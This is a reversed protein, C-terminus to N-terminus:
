NATVVPVTDRVYINRVELAKAVGAITAGAGLVLAPKNFGGTM